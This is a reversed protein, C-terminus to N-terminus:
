QSDKFRHIFTSMTHGKYHLTLNQKSFNYQSEKFRHGDTYKNM